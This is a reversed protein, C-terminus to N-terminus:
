SFNRSKLYSKIFREAKNCYNKVTRESVNLIDATEDVNNGQIRRLVFAQKLEPEMEGLAAYFAELKQKDYIVDEISVDEAKKIYEEDFEVKEKSSKYKRYYDIYENTAIRFLWNKFKYGKKFNSAKRFIKIFVNQYLDNLYEKDFILKDLYNYIDVNYRRYLEEFAKKDQDAVMKILEEDTKGSFM